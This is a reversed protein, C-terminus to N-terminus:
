YEYNIVTNHLSLSGHVRVHEAHMDLCVAVLYIYIDIIKTKNLNQFYLGNVTRYCLATLQRGYLKAMYPKNPLSKVMMVMTDRVFTIIYTRNNQM